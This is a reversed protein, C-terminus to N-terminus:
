VGFCQHTKVSFGQPLLDDAPIKEYCLIDIDIDDFTFTVDQHHEDICVPCPIEPIGHLECCGHKENWHPSNMRPM